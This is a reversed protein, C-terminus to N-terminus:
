ANLLDYDDLDDNFQSVKRKIKSTDMWTIFDEMNRTVLMAPDKVQRPGMRIHGQEILTTAETLNEAFKLRMMVVPLRRRCIASVTIKACADLGTKMPIIGMDYLKTLLEETRQVRVKDNPPLSQIKHCLHTVEGVIKTYQYYENPNGLHYRRSVRVERLNNERKWQLFDAKRLLKYEHHKLKRMNNFLLVSKSEPSPKVSKPTSSSPAPDVSTCVVVSPTWQQVPLM